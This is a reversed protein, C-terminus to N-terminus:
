PTLSALAQFSRFICICGVREWACGIRLSSPLATPPAPGHWAGSGSQPPHRWVELHWGPRWLGMYSNPGWGAERGRPPGLRQCCPSLAVHRLNRCGLHWSGGEPRGAGGLSCSCSASTGGPRRAGAGPYGGQDWQWRLM